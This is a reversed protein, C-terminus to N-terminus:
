AAQLPELHGQVQVRARAQYRLVHVPCAHTRQVAAFAVMALRCRESRTGAAARAQGRIELYRGGRLQRLRFASSGPTGTTGAHLGCGTRAPYKNINCAAAAHM